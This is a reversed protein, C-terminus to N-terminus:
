NPQIVITGVMPPHLGCVYPIEGAEGFAILSTAGSPMTGTHFERLRGIASHEISHINVFRICDGAKIVIDRPTFIHTVEVVHTTNCEEAKANGALGVMVWGAISLAALGVFVPYILRYMWTAM